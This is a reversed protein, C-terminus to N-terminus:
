DKRFYYDFILTILGAVLVIATFGIARVRSKNPCVSHNCSVGFVCNLWRDVSKFSEDDTNGGFRLFSKM